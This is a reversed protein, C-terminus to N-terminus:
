KWWRVPRWRLIVGGRHNAIAAVDKAAELRQKRREEAAGEALRYLGGKFELDDSEGIQEAVLRHIAAGSSEALAEGLLEVVRIPQWAM